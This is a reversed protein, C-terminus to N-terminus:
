LNYVKVASYMTGEPAKEPPLEGSLVRKMIENYKQCAFRFGNKWHALAPSPIKTMTPSEIKTSDLIVRGEFGHEEAFKIIEHEIKSCVGQRAYEPKVEIMNLYIHPKIRQRGTSDICLFDPPFEEGSMPYNYARKETWFCELREDKIGTDFADLQIDPKIKLVEPKKEHQFTDCTLKRYRINKFNAPKKWKKAVWYVPNTATSVSLTKVINEEGNRMIIYLFFYDFDNVFINLKEM